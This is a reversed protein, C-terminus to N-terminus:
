RQPDRARQGGGFATPLWIGGRECGVRQRWRQQETGPALQLRLMRCLANHGRTRQRLERAHRRCGVMAVPAQLASRVVDNLVRQRLVEAEIGGRCGSDEAAATTAAVAAVVAVVQRSDNTSHHVRPVADGTVSPRLKYAPVLVGVAVGGEGTM